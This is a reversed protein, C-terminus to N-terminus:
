MIVKVFLKLRKVSKFTYLLIHKGLELVFHMVGYFCILNWFFCLRCLVPTKVCFSPKWTCSFIKRQKEPFKTTYGVMSKWTWQMNGYQWFRISFSCNVLFDLLNEVTHLNFFNLNGCLPNSVRFIFTNLKLVCRVICHSICYTAISGVIMKLWTGISCARISQTISLGTNDTPLNM